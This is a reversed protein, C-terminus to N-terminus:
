DLSCWVFSLPGRLMVDRKLLLVSDTPWYDVGCVHYM